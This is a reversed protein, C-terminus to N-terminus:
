NDEVKQGSQYCETANQLLVYEALSQLSESTSFLKQKDIVGCVM